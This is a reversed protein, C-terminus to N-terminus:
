LERAIPLVTDQRLLLSYNAESALRQKSGALCIKFALGSLILGNGPGKVANWLLAQFYEHFCLFVGCGVLDFVYPCVNFFFVFCVCM